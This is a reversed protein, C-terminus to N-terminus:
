PTFLAFIHSNCSNKKTEIMIKKVFKKFNIMIGIFCHTNFYINSIVDFKLTLNCKKQMLFDITECNLNVTKRKCYFPMGFQVDFKIIM